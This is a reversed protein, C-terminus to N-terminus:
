TPISYPLKRAFRNRYHDIVKQPMQDVYCLYATSRWNGMAKVIEGPVGCSLAWTAGGTM